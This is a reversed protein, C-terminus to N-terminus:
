ASKNTKGYRKLAKYRCLSIIPRILRLRMLIPLLRSNGTSPAYHPLAKRLVPSNILASIEKYIRAENNSDVFRCSRVLFIIVYHILTHGIEQEPQLTSSSSSLSDRLFQCAKERFIAMDHTLGASDIIGMSASQANHMVYTYLPSNVFVVRNSHRLYELNFVFDEFLRMQENSQITHAKIIDLRYLRCWCYSVLHNSPHKLFHRVYEVVEPKSLIKVNGEFPEGEPSFTVKQDVIANNSELKVFNGMVMDSPFKNYQVVLTEIASPPLFDDADLFFVFFGTALRLGANRAAAPGGNKRSATCIRTDKRAYENCLAESGDTSGDDILILEIDRYTQSLVSEVCRALFKEANFVPVIISVMM